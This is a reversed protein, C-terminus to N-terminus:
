LQTLKFLVNNTKKLKRVLSLRRNKIKKMDKEKTKNIDILFQDLLKQCNNIHVIGLKKSQTKM